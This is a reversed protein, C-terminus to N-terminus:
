KITCKLFLSIVQYRVFLDDSSIVDCVTEAIMRRGFRWIFPCQLKYDFLDKRALSDLQSKQKCVLWFKVAWEREM